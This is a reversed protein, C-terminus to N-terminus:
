TSRPIYDIWELRSELAVSRSSPRRVTTAERDDCALSRTERITQTTRAVARSPLSEFPACNRARTTALAGGM